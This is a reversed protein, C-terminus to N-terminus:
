KEKRISSFKNEIDGHTRFSIIMCISYSDHHSMSNVVVVEIDATDVLRSGTDFSQLLGSQVSTFADPWKTEILRNICQEIEQM